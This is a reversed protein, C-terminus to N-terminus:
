LDEEDIDNVTNVLVPVHKAVAKLDALMEMRLDVQKLQDIDDVVLLHAEPRAILALLVRLRFRELVSLDGVAENLDVDELRLPELWPQVRKHAKLKDQNRPTIGFFPSVWAVQERVVERASVQRNLGDIEPVGALAVRRFREHARNRGDIEIEGDHQRYRGALALSLLTSSSERSTNLVTLGEHVDFTVPTDGDELVVDRAHLAVRPGEPEAAEPEAAAPEEATDPRAEEPGDHRSLATSM